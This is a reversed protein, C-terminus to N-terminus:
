KRMDISLGEPGPLPPHSEPNVFDGLRRERRQQADAYGDGSRFHDVARGIWKEVTGGMNGYTGPGHKESQDAEAKALRSKQFATNADHSLIMGQIGKNITDAATNAATTMIGHQQAASTATDQKAKTNLEHQLAETAKNLGETTKNVDSQTKERETTAVIQKAALIDAGLRGASAVGRGMEAGPNGLAPGGGISGTAGSPTSAGGGFALIPNLGGARMDDMARRYATNSMHAQWNRNKEAEDANFRMSQNFMSMQQANTAAQGSAGMMGGVLNGGASLLGSGITAMAMDDIGFM